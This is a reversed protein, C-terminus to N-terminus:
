GTQVSAAVEPSEVQLDLLSAERQFEETLRPAAFCYPIGLIREGLEGSMGDRERASEKECKATKKNIDISATM